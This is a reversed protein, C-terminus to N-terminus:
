RLRLPSRRAASDHAKYALGSHHGSSYGLVAYTRTGPVIFAFKAASTITWLDNDGRVNYMKDYFDETIFGHITNQFDYELLTQTDIVPDSASATLFDNGNVSHFTPGISLRSAIANGTASGSLINGGALGRWVAPMETLWGASRVTNRMQLFGEVQSGALDSADSMVFTTHTNDRGADYNEDVHVILRGQYVEMGMIQDVNQTNGTSTRNFVRSYGQVNEAANLDAANTTNVLAPIRFEAIADDNATGALFISDGSQEIVAEAYNSSSEGFVEPPFTFAGKYQLQSISMLPLNRPNGHSGEGAGPPSAVCMAAMASSTSFFCLLFLTTYTLRSAAAPMPSDSM